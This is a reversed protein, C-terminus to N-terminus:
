RKKKGKSRDKKNHSKKWAKNKAVKKFPKKKHLPVNRHRKVDEGVSPLPAGQLKASPIEEERSIESTIVTVKVDGGDYTTTGEGVYLVLVINCYLMCFLM